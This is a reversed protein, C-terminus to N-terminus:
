QLTPLAAKADAPTHGAVRYGTQPCGHGPAQSLQPVQTDAPRTVPRARPPLASYYAVQRGDPMTHPLPLVAAVFADSAFRNTRWGGRQVGVRRGAAEPPVQEVAEADNFQGGRRQPCEPRVALQGM